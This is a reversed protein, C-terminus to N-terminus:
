LCFLIFNMGCHYLHKEASTATASNQTFNFKFLKEKQKSYPCSVFFLAGVSPAWNLRDNSRRIFVNDAHWGNKTLHM